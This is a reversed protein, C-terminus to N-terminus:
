LVGVIRLAHVLDVGTAMAALYLLLLAIAVDLTRGPINIVLRGDDFPIGPNPDTHSFKAYRKM